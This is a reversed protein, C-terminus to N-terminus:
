ELPSGDPVDLCIRDPRTANKALTFKLDRFITEVAPILLNRPDRIAIPPVSLGSHDVSVRQALDINALCQPVIPSELRRASSVYGAAAAPVLALLKVVPTRAPRRISYPSNRATMREIFELRFVQDLGSGARESKPAINAPSSRWSLAKM